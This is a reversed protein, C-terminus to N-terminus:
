GVRALRHWEDEVIRVVRRVMRKLIVAAGIVVTIRPIANWADGERTALVEIVMLDGIFRLVDAIRVKGAHRAHHVVGRDEDCVGCLPRSQILRLRGVRM